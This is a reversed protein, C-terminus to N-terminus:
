TARSRSAGPWRARVCSRRCGSTTGTSARRAAAREGGALRDAEGEHRVRARRLEDRALPDLAVIPPRHVPRLGRAAASAEGALHRRPGYGFMRTGAASSCASRATPRSSATSCTSRSGRAASRTRPSPRTTPTPTARRAWTPRAPCRAARSTRRSCATPAASRRTPTTTRGWRASARLEHRDRPPDPRQGDGDDAFSTTRARARRSAARRWRWSSRSTSPRAGAMVANVAVKEVTFEWFERFATPRLRGVIEDRRTARAPSCRRSASRPRCCSRCSTRGTTRSSCRAPPQGRHRRRAAAADLPRLCGTCTRTTSRAADPGRDGGAHVPRGNIPITATSTPACSPPRRGVVPQPVFAQRMRPMGNVRAVSRALRAFVHTHVAVTPVGHQERAGDRARRGDPVPAEFVSASSPPTATPRRHAARMEPDDVWSERRRSSARHERRAHARRVLRQLQEIFVDSNDFLCDVLYVRRATSARSGRRSRSAPSRRRIAARTTSPSSRLCRVKRRQSPPRPRRQRGTGGGLYRHAAKAAAAGDGRPSRRRPRALRQPRLRRRVRRRARVAAVRRDSHPRRRRARDCGGRMRTNPTLGVYVFLGGLELEETDGIRRRAPARRERRRRRPDGRGRRRLPGRDESARPRPARYAAQATLEDGRQLVIVEGVAEALTLAEQLASDGGGVVGVTRDRM